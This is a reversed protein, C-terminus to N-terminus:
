TGGPPVARSTSTTGIGAASNGAAQCTQAADAPAVRLVQVGWTRRPRRTVDIHGLVSRQGPLVEVEFEAARPVLVRYLQFGGLRREGPVRYGDDPDPLLFRLRATFTSIRAELSHLRYRGPPLAGLVLCPLPGVPGAHTRGRPLPGAVIARASIAVVQVPTFARVTASVILEGAPEGPAETAYAPPVAWLCAIAAISAIAATRRM